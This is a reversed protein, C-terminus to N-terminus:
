LEADVQAYVKIILQLAPVPSASLTGGGALTVDQRAVIANRLATVGATNLTIPSGTGLISRPTAFASWAGTYSLFAAGNV